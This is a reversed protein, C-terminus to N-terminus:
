ATTAKDENPGKGKQATTQGRDESKPEKVVDPKQAFQANKNPQNAQNSNKQDQNTM